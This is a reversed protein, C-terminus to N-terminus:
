EAEVSFPLLHCGHPCLYAEHGRNTCAALETTWEWIDKTLKEYGLLGGQRKARVLCLEYKRLNLDAMILNDERKSAVWESWVMQLWEAAETDGNNAADAKNNLQEEVAAYAENTHSWSWAM